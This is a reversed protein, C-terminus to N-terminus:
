SEEIYEKFTISEIKKNRRLWLVINFFMKKLFPLKSLEWSHITLQIPDKFKILWNIIGIMENYDRKPVVGWAYLEKHTKYDLIYPFQSIPTTLSFTFKWILKILFNKISCFNLPRNFRRLLMTGSINLKNEIVAKVGESSLANSPPVFTKIKIHFIDELYEKGIKVKRRLNKYSDWEFEGKWLLQQNPYKKRLENLWGKTAYDLNKENIGVKYLHNYGHLMIELKNEKLKQKLYEVIKKNKHLPQENLDQYFYKRDEPYYFKVSFPIVACSIKYNLSFVEEYIERITNIDSWFCIDDDRIIVKIM